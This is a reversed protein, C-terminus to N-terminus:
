LDDDDAVPQARLILMRTAPDVSIYADVLLERDDVTSCCYMRAYSEEGNGRFANVIASLLIWYDRSRILRKSSGGQDRTIVGVYRKSIENQVLFRDSFKTTTLDTIIISDDPHALAVREMLVKAQEITPQQLWGTSFIIMRGIAFLRTWAELSGEAVGSVIQRSIQLFRSESSSDVQEIPTARKEGLCDDEEIIPRATSDSHECEESAFSKSTYDESTASKSSDAIVDSSSDTSDYESESMRAKKSRKPTKRNMQGRKRSPTTAGTKSLHHDRKEHFGLARFGAQGFRISCHSFCPWREKKRLVKLIAEEEERNFPVRGDVATLHSSLTRQFSKEPETATAKRSAIWAQYCETSNIRTANVSGDEHRTLFERFLRISTMAPRDPDSKGSKNASIREVKTRM